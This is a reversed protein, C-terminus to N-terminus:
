SAAVFRDLWGDANDFAPDVSRCIRGMTTRISHVARTPDAHLRSESSGVAGTVDEVDVDNASLAEVVVVDTGPEMRM